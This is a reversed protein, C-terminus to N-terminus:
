FTFRQNFFGISSELLLYNSVMFQSIEQCPVRSAPSRSESGEIRRTAEPAALEPPRGASGFDRMKYFVM